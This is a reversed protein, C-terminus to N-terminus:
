GLFLGFDQCISYQRKFLGWCNGKSSIGVYLSWPPKTPNISTLALGVMCLHSPSVSSAFWDTLTPERFSCALDSTVYADPWTREANLLLCACDSKKRLVSAGWYERCCSCHYKQPQTFISILFLSINTLSKQSAYAPKTTKQRTIM